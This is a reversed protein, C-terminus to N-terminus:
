IEDKLQEYIINNVLIPYNLYSFHNAKDLVVLESNKINKLMIKADGIPTDIDNNGWIILVKANINKFYPTLDLNVINKFTNKMNDNLKSYDSSAFKKFIYKLWRDKYKRPLIFKIKKLLKYIITKFRINKRKIGASDIYIINKYNYKYYGTLVTIIRGGFSHGILIPNSIDLDNIFNHVMDAYDYITLNYNPFSSNGFGPYDIIYITFYDKLFNIMYSFTNRTDGWGPLIIISKKSNGYKEYYLNIDNYAYFM